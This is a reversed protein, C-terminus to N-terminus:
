QAKEWNLKELEDYIAGLTRERIQTLGHDKFAGPELKVVEDRTMGEVKTAHRVMERIKTFFEIQKEIGARDTIEGHGPIVATKADIMSLTERLSEQWGFTDAGADLDIFPWNNHFLLDGMHVLNLSPFFVILDNDTHGPGVHHYQVELGGFKDSELRQDITRSPAFDEAKVSAISGIFAKIEDIAQKPAPKEGEEIGKLIRAARGLMEEAQKLVRPKGNAHAILPMDKTFATNGGSHDGHHHTNVLLKIPAGFAEAERRLTAGLGPHKCDILMAQKESFVVLANGGQGFAVICGGVTPKWEFLTAANAVEPARRAFLGAAPGLAALTAASLSLTNFQRRSLSAM